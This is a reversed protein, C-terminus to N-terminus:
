PKPVYVMVLTNTKTTLGQIVSKSALYSTLDDVQEPDRVNCLSLETRKGEITIFVSNHDYKQVAAGYTQRYWEILLPMAWNSHFYFVDFGDWEYDIFERLHEHDPTELPM